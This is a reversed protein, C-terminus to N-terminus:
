PLGGPGIHRQWLERERDVAAGCQEVVAIFDVAKGQGTTEPGGEDEGLPEAQLSAIALHQPVPLSGRGM